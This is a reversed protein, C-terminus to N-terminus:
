IIYFVEIVMLLGEQGMYDITDILKATSPNWLINNTVDYWLVKATSPNWLINNIVDYWLFKPIWDLESCVTLMM